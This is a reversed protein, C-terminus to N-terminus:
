AEFCRGNRLEFRHQCRGALEMSHTVVVLINGREQHLGFLLEAVEDATNADLNGTPEDCLVLDPDNILARAVAVRQREGGSLQGPTHTMREGLGVRQLLERARSLARNGDAAAHQRGSALTPLLVNDLVSYQPLLHHDQFVFGLRQNRFRALARSGLTFPDAGDITVTGTTPRDLTGLIHLLTSKGSGSPGTIALNQGSEMKLDIGALVEITGGAEGYRKGVGAVQIGAAVAANAASM